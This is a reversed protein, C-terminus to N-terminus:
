QVQFEAWSVPMQRGTRKRSMSKEEEEFGDGDEQGAKGKLNPM